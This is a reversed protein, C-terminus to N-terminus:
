GGTTTTPTGVSQVQNITYSQGGVSLLPPSKTLDVSTVTGVLQTSVTVNNGSSDKATVNMTYNGAPWQTGDNGQGSWSFDNAGSNLAYNGTFVTQGTSSTINVTANAASAAKLTWGASGGSPLAATSGNLTVTQGVFALAQTSQNAQQLSVLTTLSDNANLQQEVQAFQVLQQTFQNTDLPNLPNQNKLQTTLLTLFENFNSAIGAAANSTSKSSSASTSTSTATTVPTATVTM